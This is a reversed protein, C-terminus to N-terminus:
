TALGKMENCPPSNNKGRREVQTDSAIKEELRAKNMLVHVCM